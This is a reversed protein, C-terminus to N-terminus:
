AELPPARPQAIGYPKLAQPSFDVRPRAAGRRRRHTRAADPPRRSSSPRRASNACRVIATATTTISPRAPQAGDDDTVCLVAADGFTAKLFAVAEARDSPHGSAGQLHHYPLALLQGFLALAAVLVALRSFTRYAPSRGARGRVTKKGRRVSM